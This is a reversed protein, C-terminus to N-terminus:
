NHNRWAADSLVISEVELSIRYWVNALQRARCTVPWLHSAPLPVNRIQMRELPFCCGLPCLYMNRTFLPLRSPGWPLESGPHPVTGTVPSDHCLFLVTLTVAQGGAM